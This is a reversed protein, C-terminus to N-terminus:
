ASKRDQGDEIPLAMLEVIDAVFNDVGYKLALLEVAARRRKMEAPNAAIDRLRGPLSRIAERAEPCSVSAQDWIQGRGPTLYAESLIVPIAGEAIAEWLRISNPGTGSPCLAFKTQRMIERFQTSAADDVLQADTEARALIQRDYVIKNYHWDDRDIIMGDPDDALEEIIWNRSQTMYIPKAKAGVFSFLYERDEFPVPPLDSRQVPYLPFAHLKVHAHGPLSKTKQRTHSWFIDTVGAEALLDAFKLMHIHQCVTVVRRKGSAIKALRRLREKLLNIRATDAKNHNLLDFLTAWPFGLYVVGDCCPLFLKMQEFAHKETIAPYQWHADYAALGAEEWIDAAPKEPSNQVLRIKPGSAVKAAEQEWREISRNLSVADIQRTNVPWVQVDLKAPETLGESAHVMATGGLVRKDRRKDYNRLGSEHVHVSRIQRCPNYVTHGYIGFVYAVKNDCRPVGLPFDLCADRAPNRSASPRFAWVDQSWHPNPHLSLKNGEREYRSLAVFGSPDAEFLGNLGALTEDFYIDANALVSIDGLAKKYSLEVWDKYTPRHDFRLVSFRGDSTDVEADDDIMLVLHSIAGCARNKELCLELEKRRAADKPRFYPIFVTIEM